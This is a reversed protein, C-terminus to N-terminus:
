AGAAGAAGQGGKGNPPVAVNADQLATTLQDQRNVLDDHQSNVLTHVGKIKRSNWAGLAAAAFSLAATVIGVITGM